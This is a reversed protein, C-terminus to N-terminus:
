KEKNESDLIERIKRILLSPILPKNIFLIDPELVGKRAIINDTYGSMFLIKIHPHTDKMIEALKKCSMGPMIVDTLLFDINKVSQSIEVAEEGCSAKFVTYGLPQLTDYVMELISPEDDVVLVKETGRPMEQIEQISTAEVGMKIEPFYIKFTTGSGPESYVFIHGKLQKMIGYVTSLGLGTGEGKAKTTFFPDFIKEIIDKKLGHGTDTVVLMVYSGPSAEAHTRCYEEDFEVTDTELTLTGGEPMADRANVALNMIIQEVQGPDAKINGATKRLNLDTTIDEGILRGLMKSMNNILHNLNFVQMEMVQKRSFALLQRTLNAARSASDAIVKIRPRLPDEEPLGMMIVESYGLIVTLINNFDHAVGGALLGLSELKQTQNLAIKLKKKETIDIFHGSFGSIVGDVDYEPYLSLIITHEADDRGSILTEVGILKGAIAIEMFRERDKEPLLSFFDIGLNCLEGLMRNGETINFDIDLTFLAHEVREFLERIKKQSLKLKQERDKIAYSMKNFEATLQGIEGGTDTDPVQPYEGEQLDKVASFLVNLPKLAVTLLVNVLIIAIAVLVIAFLTGNVIIRKTTKQMIGKSLGIRVWGIHEKVTADHTQEAFMDIDKDARVSYVPDYFEFYGAHERVFVSNGPTLATPPQPTNAVGEHVIMEFKQNYFTVFPVNKIENLSAAANYVFEPNESLLPLEAAKAAVTSLIEGRKIIEERLLKQEARISTLSYAISIAIIIPCFLLLAKTKFSLRM